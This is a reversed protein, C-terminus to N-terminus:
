DTLRGAQGRVEPIVLTVAKLVGENLPIPENLLCRLSYVVASSTVARPANLNGLVQHGTGGFDFVASGDSDHVKVALCIPSGDDLFDSARLTRGKFRGLFARVAAEANDQIMHMFRHVVPLSHERVLAEILRVGQVNAAVQARLDSLNDPLSRAGAAALVGAVREEMFRGAEVLKLAVVAAGEHELLTSWAPMSGASMGGIDAHHARSAVWFVIRGRDWAPTIVTMDPLHSGGALQPHNSLLVDGPRLSAGWHRIQFRVAASMAGLHVPIYPAHAVLGGEENFLGCSFDLREKINVSVATRRLVRGMQEAVSMFRQAYLSRAVAEDGGGGGTARAAAAAAGDPRAVHLVINGSRLCFARCGPEVVVTSGPQVVLAPGSVQVDRLAASDYVPCPAWGGLSAFYAEHEPVLAQAAPEAVSFADLQESTYAQEALAFSSQQRVRVRVVDVWVQRGALVFGFERLHQAEFEGLCAEWSDLHPVPVAVDTGQYRLHLFREVLVVAQAEQRQASDLMGRARAEARALMDLIAAWDQARLALASAEQAEHVVEALALGVASLIGAYRHIYVRSINLSAALAAAHQGGAGGFACLAHEATDFGKMLTMERIPRCMAENAVQVFGSAIEEVSMGRLEPSAARLAEFARRSAGLDLPEDERPGFVHPFTRPVLRGLVLNADSVALLGGKRKYCVPGPRAGASDPGVLFMGNRYKLLSGGGAAVTNVDLQAAQITVGATSSEFVLDYTGAFRSVDTSTGGMDFGIVAVKGDFATSAMEM